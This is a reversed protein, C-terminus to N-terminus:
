AKVNSSSKVLLFTMLFGSYCPSCNKSDVWVVVNGSRTKPITFCDKESLSVILQCVSTRRHLAGGRGLLDNLAAYPFVSRLM